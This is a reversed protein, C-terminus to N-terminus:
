RIEYPLVEQSPTQLNEIFHQAEQACSLTKASNFWLSGEIDDFSWYRLLQKLRALAYADGREARSMEFFRKLFGRRDFDPTAGPRGELVARIERALTPRRVVGRGLAVREIGCTSVCRQYDEVSWIDGNALFPIQRGERMSSIFEWHAPPKYMEAKTRAHVVVHAAGAEEVAAAIERHFDKHDFGLRVKATVPISSPLAARVARTVDFLRSPEKLLAAGGDHRNVTKAPCGFNLDIGPAGLEAALAANEAMPGPQGGLLQIFVPTGHRTLGSNQLEPCYRHFVHAPLLRETVRVFETVMRDFGGVESLLDRLIWDLVGEMPALQISPVTTTIEEGNARHM